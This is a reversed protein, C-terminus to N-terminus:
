RDPRLHDLLRRRDTPRRVPAQDPRHAPHDSRPDGLGDGVHPGGPVTRHTALDACGATPRDVTGAGTATFDRVQPGPSSTSTTWFEGFGVHTPVTPNPATADLIEQVLTGNFLFRETGDPDGELRLTFPTVGVPLAGSAAIVAGDVSEYHGMRWTRGILDVQLVRCAPDGTVMHSYLEVTPNGTTGPVNVLAEVTITSSADFEHLINEAGGWKLDGGPFAFTMAIWPRGTTSGTFAAPNEIGSLTAARTGSRLAALNSPSMTTGHINSYGSSGTISASAQTDYGGSTLFMWDKTGVGLDLSPPDATGTIGTASAYKIQSLIAATFGAPQVYYSEIHTAFPTAAGTLTLADNSTSDCFRAFATMRIFETGSSVAITQNGKFAATPGSMVYCDDFTNFMSAIPGCLRVTDYVLKTGANQTDQATINLVETGNVRVIVEGATDSLVTRVEIYNWTNIAIIGPGSVALASAGRWFTLSGNTAVTLRNHQTVNTDSYFQVIESTAAALSSIQHAFGIVVTAHEPRLTFDVHNTSAAGTLRAAQGTRGAVTTAAGTTFWAGYHDFSEMFDGAPDGVSATGLQTWGTSATHLVGAPDTQLVRAICMYGAVLNSPMTQAVGGALSAGTTAASYVQQPYAGSHSASVAAGTTITPLVVTKNASRAVPLAWDAGLAAREFDDTFDAVAPEYEFVEYSAGFGVLTGVVPSDDVETAIPQGNLLFRQEGGTASEFRLRAAAGTYNFPLTGSAVTPGSAGGIAYQHMEWAVSGNPVVQPGLFEATAGTALYFDDYTVTGSPLVIQAYSAAATAGTIIGFASTVDVGDVRM